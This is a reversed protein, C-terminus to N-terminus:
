RGDQSNLWRNTPFKEISYEGGLSDRFTRCRRRFDELIHQYAADHVLNELQGPDVALDHLFESSEPDQQFYNAYVFREHRIGEWKPIQAHDMLHECFFAKRWGPPEQGYVLPRLSRGQYHPPVDLGALDLITAPIDINLSMADSVRGAAGGSTARPDFIILPVRLSEEYHSWKGAFGRAGKYYGNDGSFIIVTREANGTRDLAQLVRGIVRDLGTIMRYYARVNRQYKEDTDWRWFYRVRNLSDKLYQPHKEFVVPDSHRPAPIEVNEYLGDESPPWPFHDVKDGDEAHAANFSVSLCFNKGEPVSNLFEIARDGIIDTLHRRSGDPMQKFYPSRNLPVFSDFMVGTQSGAPVGIGFKGVFGTHFGNRRMVAPYSEGIFDASVPPTGFTFKHTREYLGTFISARSAACISTTVFSNEFRTGKAALRDLVPTRLIPHGACGLFDARHDDSLFYIVNFNKDPNSGVAGTDASSTSSGPITAFVAAAAVLLVRPLNQRFPHIMRGHYSIGTPHSTFVAGHFNNQDIRIM